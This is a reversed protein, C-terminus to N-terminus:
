DPLADVLPRLEVALGTIECFKRSVALAEDLDAARIVSLGGLHEKGETFPGDTVLAEGDRVRLVTATSPPQLGATFVWAGAAELEGRWAAVREMIPGLVQPPPPATDPQYVSILYHKM